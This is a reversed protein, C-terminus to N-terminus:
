YSIELNVMNKFGNQPCETYRKERERNKKRGRNEKTKHNKKNKKYKITNTM